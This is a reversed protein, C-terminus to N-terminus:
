ATAADFHAVVGKGFTFILWQFDIVVVMVGAGGVADVEVEVALDVPEVVFAAALALCDVVVM